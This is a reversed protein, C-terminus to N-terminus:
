RPARALALDIARAIEHDLREDFAADSPAAALIGKPTTILTGTADRVIARWKVGGSSREFTLHYSYPEGTATTYEGFRVAM